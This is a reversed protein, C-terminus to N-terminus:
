LTGTRGKSLASKIKGEESTPLTRMLFKQDYEVDRYPRVGSLTMGAEYEERPTRELTSHYNNDYVDYCWQCLRRYFASLTWTAKRRPDVSRTMERPNKM